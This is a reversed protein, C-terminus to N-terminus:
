TSKHGFLVVIIVALQSGVKILGAYPAIAETETTTLKAESITLGQKEARWYAIMWALAQRVKNWRSRTRQQSGTGLVYMTTYSAVRRVDRPIGVRQSDIAVMAVRTDDKTPDMKLIRQQIERAAEWKLREDRCKRREVTMDYVVAPAEDAEEVSRYTMMMMLPRDRKTKSYISRNTYRM